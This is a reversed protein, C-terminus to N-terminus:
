VFDLETHESDKLRIKPLLWELADLKNHLPEAEFVSTVKDLQWKVREIEKVLAAETRPAKELSEIFQKHHRYIAPNMQPTLYTRDLAIRKQILREIDVM